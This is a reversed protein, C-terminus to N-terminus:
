GLKNVLEELQKLARRYLAFDAEDISKAHADPRDNVVNADLVFGNKDGIMREFLAWEKRTLLTILDTWNYKEIADDASLHSFLKRRKEEFVALVRDKASKKDPNQLSDLKVFNLAIERLRKELMNRQRNLVALDDAWKDLRGVDRSAIETEPDVEGTERNEELFLEFGKSIMTGSVHLRPRTSVLGYKELVGIRRRYKDASNGNQSVIDRMPELLDPYVRFLHKLALEAITAGEQDVFSELLVECKQSDITVPREEIPVNRHVFSGAKRIWFPMNAAVDALHEAAPEDFQLGAMRGVKKVMATSAGRPLPTLYEEPVFAMAANEIGDIEGESFWKSSVGSVVISMCTSTRSIEQYVARFNRWFRNFNKRWYDSTPSAPTIYDVEDFFVIVPKGCKLVVEQLRTVGESGMEAARTPSVSRYSEQADLAAIASCCISDLLGEASLEWIEDRSCDVMLSMCEYTELEGIIRNIISTKGIKRIGLLSRIQGQQLKRALDQAESRRGFFQADSSVPGTVDFADHSYLESCLISELDRGGLQLERRNVPLLSIGHERGWNRLVSDGGPDQHVVIAIKSEYRGESKEIQEVVARVTRVQLRGFNCVLVAIERQVALTASLRKSPRVTLVGYFARDFEVITDRTVTVLGGAAQIFESKMEDLISKPSNASQADM